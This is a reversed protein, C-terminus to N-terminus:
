SLADRSARKKEPQTGHHSCIQRVHAIFAARQPCRRVRSVSSVDGRAHFRVFSFARFRPACRQPRASRTRSRASGRNRYRAANGAKRRGALRRRGAPSARRSIRARTGPSRVAVSRNTEDIHGPDTPRQSRSNQRSKFLFAGARYSEGLSHIGRDLVRSRM